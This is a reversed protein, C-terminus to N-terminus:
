IFWIVTIIIFLPILIGVSYKMYGFFSPMQVKNEEAVAKVMFNPGNGIYSNAGMFVAGLSIAALIKFPLKAGEYALGGYLSLVDSTWSVANATEFFTIYTPANDLFSSLAGTFWFFKAPTDVGLESGHMNLIALAPMMTLFIGIFLVAVEIIPSYTFNNDRRLQVNTLKLSLLILAIMILERYPSGGHFLAQLFVPLHHPDIAFGHNIADGISQSFAVSIIVGMLFLFNIKGDVAIKGQTSITSIYTQNSADKKYLISDWVFYLILLSVVSFLWQPLLHLTWTFPVGRLYGLFLPPDGLPTLSGGINSVLFIFFIVTHVVHSRSANIKLVPRILLMSAGTTGVLSAIVAGIGLFLTNIQPTAKIDGKLVIGGSIIFLSGLLIIFQSFEILTHVVNITGGINVFYVLTIIGLPFSIYAKHTNHEWWHPAFLPLVAIVLLLIVFPLVWILPIDPLIHKDGTQNQQMEQHNEDIQQAPQQDPQQAPLANNKETSDISDPNQNQQPEAINNEPPIANEPAAPVIKKSPETNESYALFSFTFLFSLILVFFIKSSPMLVGIFNFFTM